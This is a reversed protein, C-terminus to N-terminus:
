SALKNEVSDGKKILVLRSLQLYWKKFDKLIVQSPFDIGPKGVM